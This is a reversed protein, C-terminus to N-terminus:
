IALMLAACCSPRIKYFEAKKLVNKKIPLSSSQQGGVFDWMIGATNYSQSVFKTLLQAWNDPSM